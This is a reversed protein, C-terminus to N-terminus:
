EELSKKETPINTYQFFTYHPSHVNLKTIIPKKTIEEFFSFKNDIVDSFFYLFNKCVNEIQLSMVELSFDDIFESVLVRSKEIPYKESLNIKTISLKGDVKSIFIYVDTNCLRTSIVEGNKLTPLETNEFIGSSYIINNDVINQLTTWESLLTENM